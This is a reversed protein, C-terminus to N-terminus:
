KWFQSSIHERTGEMECGSLWQRIDAKSEKGWAKSLVWKGWSDGEELSVGFDKLKWRTVYVLDIKVSTM